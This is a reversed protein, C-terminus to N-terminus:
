LVSYIKNVALQMLDDDDDFHVHAEAEEVSYELRCLLLRTYTHIYYLHVDTCAHVTQSCVVSFILASILSVPAIQPM